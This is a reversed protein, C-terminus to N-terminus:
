NSRSCQWIRLRTTDSHDIHFVFVNINFIHFCINVYAIFLFKLNIPALTLQMCLDDIDLTRINIILAFLLRLYIIFCDINMLWTYQKKKFSLNEQVDSCGTLYVLFM